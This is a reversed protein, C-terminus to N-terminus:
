ILKVLVRFHPVKKPETQIVKVRLLTVLAQGLALLDAKSEMRSGKKHKVGESSASAVM